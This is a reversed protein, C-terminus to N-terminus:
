DNSRGGRHPSSERRSRAAMGQLSGAPKRPGSRSRGEHLSLVHRKQRRTVSQM